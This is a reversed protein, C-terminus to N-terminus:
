TRKRLLMGAALGVFAAAAIGTRAPLSWTAVAVIGAVLAAAAMTRDRLLPVTLAIFALPGAFELRWAAPLGAGVAIGAAVTVQWTLWVTVAAGFFYAAKGPLGPHESFRAITLGYANDALLYGAALKWRPALQALHPRLSASYMMFRLNIFLATVLIVVIPTDGALLQTAALMSAGAYVVISLAMAEIPPIGGATM